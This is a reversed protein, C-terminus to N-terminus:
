GTLGVLLFFIFSTSIALHVVKHYNGKKAIVNEGQLLINNVKMNLKLDSLIEIKVARNVIM